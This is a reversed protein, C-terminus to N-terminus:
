EDGMGGRLKGNWVLSGSVVELVQYVDVGYFGQRSSLFEDVAGQATRSTILQWSRCVRSGDHCGPDNYSFAVMYTKIAKTKTKTDM